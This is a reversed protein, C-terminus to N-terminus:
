LSVTDIWRHMIKALKKSFVAHVNKLFQAWLVSECVRCNTGGILFEESAESKHWIFEHWELVIVLKEM